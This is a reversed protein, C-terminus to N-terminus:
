LGRRRLVFALTRLLIKVDGWLSWTAVYLYDLKVMEPLSIRASGLAQWPGTESLDVLDAKKAEADAVMTRVTLMSFSHEAKGIRPQRFLAPGRSDLKVALAILGLLPLILLM